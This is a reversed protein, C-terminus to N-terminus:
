PSKLGSKRPAMGVRAILLPMVRPKGKAKRLIRSSLKRKPPAAIRHLTGEMDAVCSITGFYFIARPRFTIQNKFIIAMSNANISSV